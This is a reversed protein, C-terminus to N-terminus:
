LYARSFAGISFRKEGTSKASLWANSIRQLAPMLAEVGEAPVVEFSAGDPQARRPAQRLEARTAGELSFEALPVRAEEGIKLAALGLDVYLALREAGVQYFVTQGGHHDSIERLRWVLEEAGAKSGVPDGLAIWSRGAIQYMVFSDGADSFLVRKDGTLAANALTADAGAILARARALEEPGAVAPEDRAPRLMNLLVYASGLVIVTLSARLMRPATGYPGFTS